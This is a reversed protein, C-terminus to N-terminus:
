PTLVVLVSANESLVSDDDNEIVGDYSFAGKITASDPRKYPTSISQQDRAALRRELCAARPM